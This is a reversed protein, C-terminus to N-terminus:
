VCMQLLAHVKSGDGALINPDADLLLDAEASDTGKYLLATAANQIQKAALQESTGDRMPLTVLLRSANATLRDLDKRLKHRLTSKM